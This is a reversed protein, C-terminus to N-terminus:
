VAIGAMYALQQYLTPAAQGDGCLLTCPPFRFGLRAGADFAGFKKFHVQFRGEQTQECYGLMNASGPLFTGAEGQIRPGARVIVGERTMKIQDNATFIIHAPLQYLTDRLEIFSARMKGWHADSAKEADGQIDALMMDALLTLQDVVITRGYKAWFAEPGSRLATSLMENAVDSLEAVLKRKEGREGLQYFAIDMGRLSEVSDENPPLVFVPKPFSAASMTKGSRAPGYLFLHLHVPGPEKANHWGM